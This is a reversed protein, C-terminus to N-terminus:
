ICIYPHTDRRDRCDLPRKMVVGEWEHLPVQMTRLAKDTHFGILLPPSRAEVRRLTVIVDLSTVLDRAAVDDGGSNCHDSSNLPSKQFANRM